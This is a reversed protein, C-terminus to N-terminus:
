AILNQSDIVLKLQDVLDNPDLTFSYESKIVEVNNTDIAVAYHRKNGRVVIAKPGIEEKIAFKFGKYEINPLIGLQLGNGNNLLQNLQNNSLNSSKTELLDGIDHLQASRFLM